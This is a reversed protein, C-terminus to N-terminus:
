KTNKSGSQKVCVPVLRISFGPNSSPIFPHVCMIYPVMDVVLEIKLSPDLEPTKDASDPM